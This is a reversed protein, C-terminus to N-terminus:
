AALPSTRQTPSPLWEPAVRRLWRCAPHSNHITMRARTNRYRLRCSLGSNAYHWLRGPTVVILAHFVKGALAQSLLECFDAANAIEVEVTAGVQPAAMTCAGLMTGTHYATPRRDLGDRARTTGIVGRGAVHATASIDSGHSAPETTRLGAAAITISVAVTTAALALGLTHGTSSDTAM